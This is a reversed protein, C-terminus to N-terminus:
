ESDQWIEWFRKYPKLVNMDFRKRNNCKKFFELTNGIGDLDHNFPQNFFLHILSSLGVLARFSKGMVFEHSKGWCIGSDSVNSFPPYYLLTNSTVFLSKLAYVRVNVLKKNIDLSFIWLLPPMPVKFKEIKPQEKDRLVEFRVKRIKASELVAVSQGHCNRKFAISGFPLLGSNFNYKQLILQQFKPFSLFKFQKQGEKEIEVQAGYSDLAIKIM